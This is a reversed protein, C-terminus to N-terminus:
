ILSWHGAGLSKIKGTIELMTLTQNFAVTGLGSTQLLANGDTVGSGLLELLTYEEANAAMTKHRSAAPKELKLTRMIDEVATVVTAGSKILNNTGRSTESTINGPVAMVERGQELAFNATHLSGSQEAAETILVGDSLGAILRNRAVFNNKFPETGEPYETILAGGAALIQRALQHHTSPYIRDLGCPLVAITPTGARLAAQHALGDIGLALGSVIVIGQRAADETLRATIARGYPSVKRSGVVALCPGNLLELFSEGAVFLQRPPGSIGRLRQPINDSELTLKKVKYM